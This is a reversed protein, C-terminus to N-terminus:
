KKEEKEKMEIGGDSEESKRVMEVRLKERGGDDNQVLGAAVFELRGVGVYIQGMEGMKRM